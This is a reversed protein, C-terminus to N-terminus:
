LYQLVLQLYQLVLQLRPPIQQINLILHYLTLYQLKHIPHHHPLRIQHPQTMNFQEIPEPIKVQEVVKHEIKSSEAKQPEYHTDEVMVSSEPEKESSFENLKDRNKKFREFM